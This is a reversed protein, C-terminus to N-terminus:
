ARPFTLDIAVGKEPHDAVRDNLAITGDYRDVLLRVISLGLSRGFGPPALGARAPIVHPKQADPIGPGHDALRVEWRDPREVVTAEITVDAQPTHKASNHLINYFLEDALDDVMTYAPKAPAELHAMIRKEPFAEKVRQICRSIAATLDVRRMAKAEESRLQSLRRVNSVLEQIHLAQAQAKRLLVSASEPMEPTEGLGVLYIGLATNYNSIDHVIMRLYGDTEQSSRLLHGYLRANEIAVAALDAFLEITALTRRDPHRGDRPENIELYGTWNGMRDTFVFDVYDGEWWEDPTGRPKRLRNPDLGYALEDPSLTEYEGKVDYTVRGVRHNEQLDTHMREETYALGLIKATQEPTYGHVAKPHFLGTIPDRLGLTVERMGFADAVTDVIRQLLSDLSEARLIGEMAQLLRDVLIAEREEAPPRESASAKGQNM